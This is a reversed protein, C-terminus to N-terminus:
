KKLEALVFTERKLWSNDRFQSMLMKNQTIAEELTVWKPNFELFDEYDDLQQSVRKKNSLECWYYHSTMQFMLTHIRKFTNSSVFKSEEFFIGM